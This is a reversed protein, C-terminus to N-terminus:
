SVKGFTLQTNKQLMKLLNLKRGAARNEEQSILEMVM